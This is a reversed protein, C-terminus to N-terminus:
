LSQAFGDYDSSSCQQWRRPSVPFWSDCWIREELEEAYAGLGVPLGHGSPFFCFFMSGEDSTPPVIVIILLFDLIQDVRALSAWRGFRGRTNRKAPVTCYRVPFLSSTARPAM